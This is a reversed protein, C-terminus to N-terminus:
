SRLWSALQPWNRWGEPNGVKGVWASLANLLNIRLTTGSARLATRAYWVVLEDSCVNWSDRWEDDSMCPDDIEAIRDLEMLQKETELVARRATYVAEIYERQREASASDGPYTPFGRLNQPDMKTILENLKVELRHEPVEAVAKFISDMQESM